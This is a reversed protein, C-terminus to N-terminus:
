DKECSDAADGGDSAQSPCNVDVSIFMSANYNQSTGPRSGTILPASILYLRGDFEKEKTEGERIDFTGFDYEGYPTANGGNPQGSSRDVCHPSYSATMMITATKSRPIDFLHFRVDGMELAQGSSASEHTLTASGSGALCPGLEYSCDPNCSQSALSALAATLISATKGYREGVSKFISQPSRPAVKEDTANKGPLRKWGEMEGGRNMKKVNM